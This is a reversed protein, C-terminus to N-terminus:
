PPGASKISTDRDADEIRKRYHVHIKMFRLNKGHSFLNEAHYFNTRATQGVTLDGPSSGAEIVEEDVLGARQDRHGSLPVA